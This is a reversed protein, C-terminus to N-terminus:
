AVPSGNQNEGALFGVEILLWFGVLPILAILM